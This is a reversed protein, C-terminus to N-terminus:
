KKALAIKVARALQPGRAEIAAIKGDRGILVTFPVFRVKYRVAVASKWGGGDFVQRWPMNNAATFQLLSSKDQDLSLGVIDFGNAKQQAYLAAVEPADERCPPCWTAWFDLLLVRGKYDEFNVPKGDM